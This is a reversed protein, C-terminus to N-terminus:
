LGDCEDDGGGSEGGSWLVNHEYMGDRGEGLTETVAGYYGVLPHEEGKVHSVVLGESRAFGVVAFVIDFLDAFWKCGLKVGLGWMTADVAEEMVCSFTAM